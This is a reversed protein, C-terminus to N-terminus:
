LNELGIWGLMIRYIAFVVWCSETFRLCWLLESWTSGSGLFYIYLWFRPVDECLSSFVLCFWRVYARVDRDPFIEHASFHFSHGSNLYVRSVVCSGVCIVLLGCCVFFCFFREAVILIRTGSILSFFFFFHFGFVCCIVQPLTEYWEPHYDPSDGTRVHM